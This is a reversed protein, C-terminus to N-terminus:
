NYQTDWGRAYAMDFGYKAQALFNNNGTMQYGRILALSFWGIDDNWGDWTWPPPTNNLWTTCLNNVLTKNTVSGTREYADEAVLIDLSAVWTGDATGDNVSKKYYTQGGSNVLFAANYGNFAADANGSNVTNQTTVARYSTKQEDNGKLSHDKTCKSFLLATGTALLILVWVPKSTKLSNNM